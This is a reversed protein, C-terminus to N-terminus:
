SRCPRSTSRCANASARHGERNQARDSVTPIEIVHSNATKNQTSRWLEYSWKIDGLNSIGSKQDAGALRSFSSDQRVFGTSKGYTAPVRRWM